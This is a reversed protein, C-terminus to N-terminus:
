KKVASKGEKDFYLIFESVEYDGASVSSPINRKRSIASWWKNKEIKEGFNFYHFGVTQFFNTFKSYDKPVEITPCLLEYESVHLHGEINEFGLVLRLKSHRLSLLNEYSSKIRLLRYFKHNPMQGYQGSHLLQNESDFIWYKGNAVPYKGDLQIGFTFGLENHSDISEIPLIQYNAEVLSPLSTVQTLNMRINSNAVKQSLEFSKINLNRAKISEIIAYFAMSVSVLLTLSQILKDFHKVTFARIKRIFCSVKKM